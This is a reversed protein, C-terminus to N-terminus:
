ADGGLDAAAIERAIPGLGLALAQARQTKSASKMLAALQTAEPDTAPSLLSLAVDADVGLAASMAVFSTEWSV